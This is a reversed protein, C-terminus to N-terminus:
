FYNKLLLLEGNETIDLAGDIFNVNISGRSTNNIILFGVQILKDEIYYRAVFKSNLALALEKPSFVNIGLADTNEFVRPLSFTNTHSIERSDTNGIKNILANYKISRSDRVRLKKWVNGKLIEIRTSQAM